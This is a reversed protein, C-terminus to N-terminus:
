ICHVEIIIVYNRVLICMYIDGISNQNKKFLIKRNNM